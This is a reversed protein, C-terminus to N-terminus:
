GQVPQYFNAVMADMQEVDVDWTQGTVQSAIEQFFKPLRDDQVTLGAANNFAKEMMLTEAGMGVVREPTWEGGFRGKLMDQFITMDVVMVSGAFLCLMSDVSALLPQVQFSAEIAADKSLQDVPIAMTVGSTHDAGMTSTAYSVGTGKTARPDYSALAQGKATPIRKAGVTKGLLDVGGKGLAEGLESGKVMDGILQLAADADGWPIKGAEMCVAIASGAEISDIGFDDCIRDMAFLYELDYIGCNPGVLGATEYEVGASVYEGKSNNCINSCKIACGAQCALNNKGGNAKLTEVFNEGSYVTVKEDAAEGSFNNIPLAGINSYVMLDGITGVEKLENLMPVHKMTQILKMNAEKFLDQDAYTVQYKTEAKEIVIGKIKKSGLVAGLGGRAAARSPHGTVFDTCMLSSVVYQREGAVGIAMVDIKEGYTEHMKEVYEYTNMGVCDDCPVLALSGDASIKLYHWQDTEPMDEFVIMKIGHRALGAGVTGGSNAEKIGGTLPSKGGVNLRHVTTASTGSLVGTCVILKNDPGLPDCTPPVETTMVKAILGRGGYSSYENDFDQKLIEGNKTNIRYVKEM